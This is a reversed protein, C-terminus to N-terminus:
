VITKNREEAEERLSNSIGTVSVTNNIIYAVISLIAKKHYFNTESFDKIFIKKFFKM